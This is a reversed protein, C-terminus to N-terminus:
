KKGGSKKQQDKDKQHGKSKHNDKAKQNGKDKQSHSQKAHGRNDGHRSKGKASGRDRSIVSKDMPKRANHSAIPETRDAM